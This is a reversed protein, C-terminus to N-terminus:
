KEEAVRERLEQLFNGPEPIVHRIDEPDPLGREPYDSAEYDVLEANREKDIKLRYVRTDSGGQCHAASVLSSRGDRLWNYHTAVGHSMTSNLVQKSEEVVFYREDYNLYARLLMQIDRFPVMFKADFRLLFYAKDIKPSSGDCEYFLIQDRYYLRKM